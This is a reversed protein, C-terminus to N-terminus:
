LIRLSIQRAIFQEVVSLRGIPQNLMSINQKMMWLFKRSRILQLVQLLNAAVLTIQTVDADATVNGLKDKAKFSLVVSGSAGLGSVTFKNSDSDTGQTVTM